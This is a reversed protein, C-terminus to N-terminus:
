KKKWDEIVQQMGADTLEDHVYRFLIDQQFPAAGPGRPSTIVWARLRWYDEGDVAKKAKLRELEMLAGWLNSARVMRVVNKATAEPRLQGSPVIRDPASLAPLTKAADEAEQARKQEDAKLEIKVRAEELQQIQASHDSALQKLGEQYEALQEPRLGKPVPSQLILQV